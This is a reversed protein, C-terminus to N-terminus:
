GDQSRNEDLEPEPVFCPAMGGRIPRQRLRALLDEDVQQAVATMVDHKHVCQACDCPRNRLAM